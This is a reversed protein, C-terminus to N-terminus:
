PLLRLLEIPLQEWLASGEAVLEVAEPYSINAEDLRHCIAKLREFRRLTTLIEPKHRRITERDQDSIDGTIRLQLNDGVPAMEIGKKQMEVIIQGM